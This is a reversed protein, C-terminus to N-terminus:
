EAAGAQAGRSTTGPVGTAGGDGIKVFSSSDTTSSSSARRRPSEQSSGRRRSRVTVSIPSVQPAAPLTLLHRFEMIVSPHRSGLPVRWQRLRQGEARAPQTHDVVVGVEVV